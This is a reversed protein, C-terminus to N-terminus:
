KRAKEKVIKRIFDTRNPETLLIPEDNKHALPAVSLADPYNRGDALVFKELNGFEKAIILATEYRDAGALRRTNELGKINVSKEGGFILSVKDKAIGKPLNHGDTLIIPLNEKSSLPTACLADAFTLGSALAVKGNSNLYKYVEVSTEYRDAGALRKVNKLGKVNVSKEGGVIIIQEPSLRNIEDKIVQPLKEKQTLLVPANEKNALSGAVLIDAFNEGSALVIKEIQHPFTRQSIKASTEYRDSGSIRDVTIKNQEEALVPTFSSMVMSATLIVGLFKKM